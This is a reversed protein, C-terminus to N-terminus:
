KKVFVMEWGYFYGKKSTLEKRFTDCLYDIQSQNIHEIGFNAPNYCSQFWLWDDPWINCELLKFSNDTFMKEVSKNTLQQIHGGGNPHILHYFIDTFNRYDPFGVYMIGNKKLLKAAGKILNAPNDVHELVHNAIVVDFKNSLDTNESKFTNNAIYKPLSINKHIQDLKSADYKYITVNKPIKQPFFYFDIGTITANADIQTWWPSGIPGTGVDFINKKGKLYKEVGTIQQAYLKTIKSFNPNKKVITKNQLALLNNREILLTDRDKIIQGIIPLQYKLKNM